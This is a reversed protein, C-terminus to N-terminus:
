FNKTKWKKKIITIAYKAGEIFKQKSIKDWIKTFKKKAEDEIQKLIEDKM